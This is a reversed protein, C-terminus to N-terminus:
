RYFILHLTDFEGFYSEIHGGAQAQTTLDWAMSRDALYIDPGWEFNIDGVIETNRRLYGFQRARECFARHRAKGEFAARLNPNRAAAAEEGPTLMINDDAYRKCERILRTMKNIRYQKIPGWNKVKNIFKASYKSLARFGYHGAVSTVGGVVGAVAMGGPTWHYEGTASYTVMSEVNYAAIGAAAGAAFLGAASAGSLGVPFALGFTGTVVAGAVLGQLGALCFDRLNWEGGTAYTYITYGIMGIAMGVLAGIAIHLVAGDPDSYRLPNNIVYVYSNLTQSIKLSGGEPDETIFRGLDPDYFRAGYYYLGTDQDHEEGAYKYRESGVQGIEEGFPKYDTGFMPNKSEDLVLRVNGNADHFYYDMSSDEYIRAILAGNVYVYKLGTRTFADWEYLARGGVYVYAMASTPPSGQESVVRRGLADYYYQEVIVGDREVRELRDEFDYHYGWTVPPSGTDEVLKSELNGNPDYTFSAIRDLSVGTEIMMDLRNYPGYEYIVNEDPSDRTIRNGLSDYEYDIFMSPSDREYYSLRGLNDYDYSEIWPSGPSEISQIDGNSFYLYNLEMFDTSDDHVLINDLRRMLPDYTYSTTIENGGNEFTSYDLSDDAHYSVEAITGGSQDKVYEARDFVDYEYTVQYFDPYTTTLLNGAKDYDFQVLGSFSTSGGINTSLQSTLRDREDYGYSLLFYDSSVRKLITDLNGNEDYSYTLSWFTSPYIVEKLQSNENYIFEFLNEKRDTYYRINGINDYEWVESTTTVDNPYNAQILRDLDDYIYELTEQFPPNAHRDEITFIVKRMNGVEDYEYSTVYYDSPNAHYDRASILRGGYDYSYLTKRGVEDVITEFNSLLDYEKMVCTTDPNTLRVQRGLSDYELEYEDDRATTYKVVNSLWDYSYETKSYPITPPSGPYLREVSKLRNKEDYIYKVPHDNENFILVYNDDDHHEYRTQSPVGNVPPHDVQIVRGLSDYSYTTTYGRPNTVTELDGTEDFGLEYHYTYYEVIQQGEVTKRKETLFAGNYPPNPDFVFETSHGPEPLTIGVVNGWPDYNFSTMLWDDDHSTLSQELQGFEDYKNMVYSPVPQEPPTPSPGNQFELTGVVRDHMTDTIGFNSLFNSTAYEYQDGGWIKEFVPSRYIRDGPNWVEFYGSLPFTSIRETLGYLEIRAQGSSATGLSIFDGEESFLKVVYGDELDDGQGNVIVRGTDPDGVDSFDYCVMGDKAWYRAGVIPVEQLLWEGANVIFLHWENANEPIMGHAWPKHTRTWSRSGDWTPEPDEDRYLQLKIETPFGYSPYWVYQIWFDESDAAPAPTSFSLFGHYRDGIESTPVLCHSKVRSAPNDVWKWSLSPSGEEIAGPPLSDEVWAQGTSKKELFGSETRVFPSHIPPKHYVLSKPWNIREPSVYEVTGDHGYIVITSDFMETTKWNLPLYSFLTQFNWLLKGAGNYIIVRQGIEIDRLVLFGWQFVSVEDVWMELTDSVLLKMQGLNSGMGLTAGSVHEVGNIIVSYTESALNVILGIRYWRGKVYDPEDLPIWSSEQNYYIKGDGMFRLGARNTGYSTCAGVYHMLPWDGFTDEGLKLAFEFVVDGNLYPGFSRKFITSSESGVLHASPPAISFEEHDLTVEGASVDWDESIVREDFSDYFIKNESETDLRGSGIFANEKNTNAFSAFSEHGLSNRSYIPNGWDDYEYYESFNVNEIQGLYTDKRVPVGRGPSFHTVTRSILDGMGGATSWDYTTAKMLGRANEFRYWDSKYRFQGVNEKYTNVYVYRVNGDTEEYIYERWELVASASDQFSARYVRYTWMDTSVWLQVPLYGSRGGTPYHIQWLPDGQVPYYVYSTTMQLGGPDLVVSSLLTGGYQYRVERGRYHITEIMDSTYTFIADHGLTDDIFDIREGGPCPEDCPEYHFSISSLGHPEAFYDVNGNANFHYVFGGKDHLTYGTVIGSADTERTLKFHEGAHNEFIDDSWVPIYQQGNHLHLYTEGIWPLNLHWHKGLSYPSQEYYTPIFTSSDAFLRQPDYIRSISLDITRGPMTIDVESVALQGSGISVTEGRRSFYEQYPSLGRSAWPTDISSAQNNAIPFSAFVLSVTGTLFFIKDTSRVPSTIYLSTGSPIDFPKLPPFWSDTRIPDINSPNPKQRTYYPQYVDEDIKQVWFAHVYDSPDVTVTPYRANYYSGLALPTSDYMCQDDEIRAYDLDFDHTVYIIHINDDSTSAASWYQWQGDERLNIDHTFVGRWGNFVEGNYAWEKIMWWIRDNQDSWLLAMPKTTLSVLELTMRVDTPSYDLVLDNYFVEGNPSMYVNIYTRDPYSCSEIPTTTYEWDVAVWFDGGPGIEVSLGWGQRCYRTSPETIVPPVLPEDWEIYNEVITGKKFYTTRYEGGIRWVVAVTSGRQALDWENLFSPSETVLFEDDSWISGDHTSKYHISHEYSYFVWYRQNHFFTRRMQSNFADDDSGEVVVSPDVKEMNEPFRVLLGIRNSNGDSRIPGIYPVGFPADSWDIVLKPSGEVDDHNELEVRNDLPAIVKLQSLSSLDFIRNGSTLRSYPTDVEWQIRFSNLISTDAKLFEVDIKPAESDHFRVYTRMSGQRLERDFIDVEVVFTTRNATIVEPKRQEMPIWESTILFQSRGLVNNRRDHIEMIRIDTKKFVFVGFVTVYEYCNSKESFRIEFPVTSVNVGPGDKTFTPVIVEAPETANSSDEDLNSNEDYEFTPEELQQREQLEFANEDVLPKSNEEGFGILVNEAIASQFSVLVFMASVLVALVRLVRLSKTRKVSLATKDVTSKQGVEINTGIGSTPEANYEQARRAVTPEIDSKWEKYEVSSNRIRCGEGVGRL